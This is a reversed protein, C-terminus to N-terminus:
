SEREREREVNRMEAKRNGTDEPDREGWLQRSPLVILNITHKSSKVDSSVRKEGTM